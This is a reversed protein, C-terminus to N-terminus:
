LKKWLLGIVPNITSEILLRIRWETFYFDRCGKEDVLLRIKIGFNILGM